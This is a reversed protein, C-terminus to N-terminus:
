AAAASREGYIKVENINFTGIAIYNGTWEGVCQKVVLGALGQLGNEDLFAYDGAGIREEVYRLLYARAQTITDATIPIRARMLSPEMGLGLALNFYRSM